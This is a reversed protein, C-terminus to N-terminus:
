DRREVERRALETKQEEMLYLYIETASDYAGVTDICYQSGGAYEGPFASHVEYEIGQGELYSRMRAVFEPLRFYYSAGKAEAAGAEWTENVENAADELGKKAADMLDKSPSRIGLREKLEAAVREASVGATETISQITNVEDELVKVRSTVPRPDKRAETKVEVAIAWPELIAVRKGTKEELEREAAAIEERTMNVDAKIIITEAEPPLMAIGAVLAGNLGGQVPEPRQEAEKPKRRFLERRAKVKRKGKM